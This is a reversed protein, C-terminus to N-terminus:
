YWWKVWYHRLKLGWYSAIGTTHHVMKGNKVWVMTPTVKVQWQQAITGHKDNVNAFSLQKEKQWQQVDNDMGSQMAVGLVPLGDQHLREVVPSTYHCVGCWTAWFYILSVGDDQAMSVPLHQQMVRTEPASPKRWYDVVVSLIAVTLVTQIITKWWSKM